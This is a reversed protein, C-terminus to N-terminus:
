NKSKDVSYPEGEENVEKSIAKQIYQNLTISQMAANEAAKKHLDPGIRVNLSGKYSKFP